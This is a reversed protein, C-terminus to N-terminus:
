TTRQRNFQTKENSLWIDNGVIKGTVVVNQSGGGMYQKLKDLPAVVEPNSISTGAGEGILATTPGTVIGGEALQVNMIEGLNSTLAAKLGGVPVKGMLMQIATMVALQILLARIAKKIGDLFVQFFNDGSNLAETLSSTVIDGFMGMSANLLKQSTTLEKTWVVLGKFQDEVSSFMEIKDGDLIKGLSSGLGNIETTLDEIIEKEDDLGALSEGIKKNEGILDMVAKIQLQTKATMLNYVKSGKKIGNLEFELLVANLEALKAKSAEARAQHLISETYNQTAVDLAGVDLAAANLKGYYEPSIKNLEKLATEKEELTTNEDKLAMTLLDVDSKQRSIAKAATSNIDNVAKQAGSVGFLGDAWDTLSIAVVGIAAAFAMYPNTIILAGVTKLAGVLAGLGISMKGIIILVPGVAALILGWKVISKKQEDSLDSFWKVAQEVKKIVKTFIPILQQGLEIAVGELQSKMRRMAGGVGSDMIDAMEKAIGSAEKNAITYKKTKDINEALILASKFARDGFMEQALVMDFNSDILKQMGEDWTSGSKALKSYIKNLHTGMSGGEMGSDALVQLKASLEEFSDGALRSTAGVVPLAAAFKEMDMAASSSALAMIDAFRQAESAEANFSNLAVATTKAAEGLETDTAQALQLIAETSALIEKPNFGLKSLEFQLTAVQSATFMTSSGLKKASETLLKFNKDTAGSVAKVKLMSQEFDAFTKLSVAGLALIPMTLNQSMNKGIRQMSKGFKKLKKQAKNMAREFSTLDASFKFNLFGIAKSAM